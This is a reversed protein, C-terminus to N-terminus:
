FICMGKKIHLTPMSAWWKKYKPNGRFRRFLPKECHCPFQIAVDGVAGVELKYTLKYTLCKHVSGMLLSLLKYTLCQRVFNPLTCNKAGIFLMDNRPLSVVSTIWFVYVKSQTAIARLQSRCGTM